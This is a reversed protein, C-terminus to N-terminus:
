SSPPPPAQPQLPRTSYSPRPPRPCTTRSPIKYRPRTPNPARLTTPSPPRSSPTRPRRWPANQRTQLTKSPPYMLGETQVMRLETRHSHHPPPRTAQSAKPGVSSSARLPRTMSEPSPFSGPTPSAAPRAIQLATAAPTAFGRTAPPQSDPILSIAKNLRESRRLQAMTSFFTATPCM